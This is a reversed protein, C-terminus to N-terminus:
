KAVEDFVECDQVFFAALARCAVQSGVCTKVQIWDCLQQFITEQSESLESLMTYCFKVQQAVKDFNILGNGQMDAAQRSIANYYQVALGEIDRALMSRPEKMKKSVQLAEYRLDAEHEYDLNEALHLLLDAVEGALDSGSVTAEASRQETMSRKLEVLKAYEEIPHNDEYREACSSCLALRGEDTGSEPPADVSKEYGRKIRYDLMVDPQLLSVVRGTPIVKGAKRKTLPVGCLPCRGGAELALLIFRDDGKAVQVSKAKPSRSKRHQVSEARLIDVFLGRLM